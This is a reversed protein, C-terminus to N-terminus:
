NNLLALAELTVKEISKFRDLGLHLGGYKRVVFVVTNKAKQAAMTKRIVLGGGYENDDCHGIKVQEDEKLGYSMMVHDMSPFRQMAAKYALKVEEIKNTRLALGVFESNKVQTSETMVLEKNIQNVKTQQEMNLFLEAPQPTVIEPDQIVGNLLIKDNQVTVKKKQMPPLSDNEQNIVKLRASVQKKTEAVAEPIQECIFLAKETTSNKKGKLKSLNEMIQDKVHYAVKIVMPRVHAERKFGLRHAKWVDSHEVKLDMERQLFDIVSQRYDERGETEDVGHILLNQEMGRKTLDTIKASTAAGQQSFKQIMGQMLALQETIKKNEDLLKALRGLNAEMVQRKNEESQVSNEVKNLRVKRGGVAGHIETHMETVKEITKALQVEIGNKPDFIADEMKNLTKKIEQLSKIVEANKANENTPKQQSDDKLEKNKFSVEEDEIQEGNLSAVQSVNSTNPGNENNETDNDKEISEEATNIQEEVHQVHTDNEERETLGGNGSKHLGLFGNEDGKLVLSKKNEKSDKGTKNRASARRVPSKEKIPSKVKNPASMKKKFATTIDSVTGKQPRSPNRTREEETNNASRERGPM